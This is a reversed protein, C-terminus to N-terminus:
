WGTYRDVRFVGKGSGDIVDYIVDSETVNVTGVVQGPSTDETVNIMTLKNNTLGNRSRLNSPLVNVTLRAQTSKGKSDRARVRLRYSKRDLHGNLRISGSLKDVVFLTDEDLSGESEASYSIDGNTLKSDADSAHLWYVIAFEPLDEPVDVTLNDSPFKPSNDNRDKIVITVEVRSSKRESVSEANDSADVMFRHLNM